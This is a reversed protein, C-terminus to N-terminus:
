LLKAISRITHNFDTPFIGLSYHVYQIDGHGHAIMGIVVISLKMFSDMTKTKHSFHPSAIKSHDMKDHIICLMKEPFKESIYRNGYYLEQHARQRAIHTNLINSWKNQSDSLPTCASRLQKYTDSLRCRAFTDGRAKPAFEPFSVRGINSLDSLSIVLLNLMANAENIQPL